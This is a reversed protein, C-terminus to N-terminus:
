GRFPNDRAEIEALAPTLENVLARAADVTLTLEFDDDAEQRLRILPEEDTAPDFDVRISVDKRVHAGKINIRLAPTSRMKLGEALTQNVSAVLSEKRKGIARHFHVGNQSAAKADRRAKEEEETLEYPTPCDDPELPIGEAEFLRDLAGEVKGEELGKEVAARIDRDSVSLDVCYIVTFKVTDLADNLVHRVADAYKKTTESM